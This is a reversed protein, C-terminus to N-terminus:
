KETMSKNGKYYIYYTTVNIHCQKKKFLYDVSTFLSAFTCIELYSFFDFINFYM